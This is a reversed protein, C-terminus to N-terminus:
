LEFEEIEKELNNIERDIDQGFSEVTEELNKSESLNSNKETRLAFILIIALFLALTIITALSSM